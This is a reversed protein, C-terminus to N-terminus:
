LYVTIFITNMEKQKQREEKNKQNPIKFAWARYGNAALVKKVHSREQDQDEPDSVHTEARNLLTRVVSRKHDLHHNSEWNLYQDTHTAKRFVTTKVCGGPGWDVVTSLWM